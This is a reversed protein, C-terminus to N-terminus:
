NKANNDRVFYYDSNPYKVVDEFGFRKCNEIRSEFFPIPEGFRRDSRADAIILVNEKKEVDEIAKKDAVYCYSNEEAEDIYLIGIRTEKYYVNYKIM